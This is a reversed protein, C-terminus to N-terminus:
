INPQHFSPAAYLEPRRIRTQFDLVITKKKMMKKKKKSDKRKIEKIKKEKGKKNQKKQERSM